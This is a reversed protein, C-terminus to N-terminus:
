VTVQQGYHRDLWQRYAGTQVNAVWEQNDLYWLV